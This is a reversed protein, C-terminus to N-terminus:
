RLGPLFVSVKRRAYLVPRRPAHAQRRLLRLSEGGRGTGRRQPPPDGGPRGPLDPEVARGTPDGAEGPADRLPLLPPDGRGGPRGRLRELGPGPVVRGRRRLGEGGRRLGVGGPHGGHRGVAPPGQGPYRFVRPVGAPEERGLRRVDNGGSRELAAGERPPAPLKGVGEKGSFPAVPIKRRKDPGLPGQFGELSSRWPV